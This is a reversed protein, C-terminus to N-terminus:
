AVPHSSANPLTSTVKEVKVATGSAVLFLMSKGQGSFESYNVNVAIVANAGVCAAEHKLEELCILRADRLATQISNSRGGIVDTVKNLMDVFINMGFACESTIVDITETIKYGALWPATTLTIKEKKPTQQQAIVRKSMKEALEVRTAELIKIQTKAYDAEKSTPHQEIISSYLSFAKDADSEKYHIDYAKKFLDETTDPM